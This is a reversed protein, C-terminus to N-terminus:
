SISIKWNEAASVQAINDPALVETVDVDDENPYVIGFKGSYFHHEIYGTKPNMSEWRSFCAEKSRLVVVKRKDPDNQDLIIEPFTNYFYNMDTLQKLLYLNIDNNEMFANIEDVDNAQVFQRTGDDNIKIRGYVIGEGYGADINFRLGGSLVESVAVKQKVQQPIDNNPGWPVYGRYDLTGKSFPYPPIFQYEFMQRSDKAKTVAAQIGPLYGMGTMGFLVMEPDKNKKKEM